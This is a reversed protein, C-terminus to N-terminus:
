RARLHHTVQRTNIDTIIIFNDSTATASNTSATAATCTGRSRLPGVVHRSHSCVTVITSRFMAGFTVFATAVSASIFAHLSSLGVYGENHAVLMIGESAGKYSTSRM